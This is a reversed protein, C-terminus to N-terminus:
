KSCTKTEELAWTKIIGSIVFYMWKTMAPGSGCDMKEIGPDGSERPHSNREVDSNSLETMRLFTASRLIEDNNGRSGESREPHSNIM